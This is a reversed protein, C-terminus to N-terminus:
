ARGAAETSAAAVPRLAAPPPEAKVEVKVEEAAELM